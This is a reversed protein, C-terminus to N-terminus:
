LMWPGEKDNTSIDYAALALMQAISFTCELMSTGITEQMM